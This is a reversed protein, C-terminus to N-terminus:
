PHCRATPSLARAGAGTRLKAGLPLPTGSLLRDQSEGDSELLVVEGAALELKAGISAAGELETKQAYGQYAFVAGISLLAVAVFGLVGLLKSPSGQDHDVQPEPAAAKPLPEVVLKADLELEHDLQTSRAEDDSM